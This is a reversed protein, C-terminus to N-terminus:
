EGGMRHTITLIADAQGALGKAADELAEGLRRIATVDAHTDVERDVRGALVEIVGAIEPVTLVRNGTAVQAALIKLFDSRGTALAASVETPVVSTGERRITNAKESSTIPM